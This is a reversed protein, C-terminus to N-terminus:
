PAPAIYEVGGAREVIRALSAPPTTHEGLRNPKGAGHYDSSGTVILDHALALHLARRVGDRDHDRHHVEIGALGADVLEEILDTPLARGRTVTFPHALVPVGGAARVLRVARAPDVAYHSVYYPSENHLLDAFATARDPVVRAAVLADALHPRGLTADPGLHASVQAMTIPIGDAALADVMRHMRTQRSTRAHEIEGLLTEDTPDILYGLLHVSRGGRQCSMELGRVLGLGTHRAAEEAAVWGRTTDHDTLALVDLGAARAAYVVEAPTDTGDSAVSHAHLDIRSSPMTPM